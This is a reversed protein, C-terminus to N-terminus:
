KKHSVGKLRNSNKQTPIQNEIKKFREDCHPSPGNSVQSELSNIRKKSETLGNEFITARMNMSVIDGELKGIKGNQDYLKHNISRVDQAVEKLGGTAARLVNSVISWSM